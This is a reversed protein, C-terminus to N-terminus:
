AAPRYRSSARAIIEPAYDPLNKRLWLISAEGRPLAAVPQEGAHMAARVSAALATGLVDDLAQDVAAALDNEASVLHTHSRLLADVDDACFEEGLVDIPYACFLRLGGKRLLENWLAELRIAAAYRRDQWLIGVMEGYAHLTRGPAPACLARVTGGVVADFRDRDPLGEVMFAALTEGADLMVLRRERAADVDVGAAALGRAFAANHESTGVVLAGDGANVGEALYRM